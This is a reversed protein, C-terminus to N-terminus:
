LWGPSKYAPDVWQASLYSTVGSKAGFGFQPLLGVLSTQIAWRTQPDRDDNPRFFHDARLIPGCVFHALFEFCCCMPGPLGIQRRGVMVLYTVAQFTFFGVPAVVDLVPLLADFGMGQLVAQFTERVFEYYKLSLLFTGALWLGLWLPRRSAPVSQMRRGLAWMATSYVCLFVAFKPVWTAYLGYGTLILLGRQWGPRSALAWYVPLFLLCFLGFEPSVFSM